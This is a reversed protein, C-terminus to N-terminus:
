SLPMNGRGARGCMLRLPGIFGSGGLAAGATGPIASTAGQARWRGLLSGLRSLGVGSSAIGVARRWRRVRFFDDNDKYSDACVSFIMANRLPGRPSHRGSAGSPRALAGARRLTRVGAFRNRGALDPDDFQEAIAGTAPARCQTSVCPKQPTGACRLAHRRCPWEQWFDRTSARRTMVRPKPRTGPIGVRPLLSIAFPASDGTRKAGAVYIAAPCGHGATCPAPLALPDRM